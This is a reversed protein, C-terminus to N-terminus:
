MCRSGARSSCTWTPAPPSCRRLRRRGGRGGARLQRLALAHVQRRHARCPREALRRGARGHRARAESRPPPCAPDVLRRGIAIRSLVPPRHPSDRRAREGPGPSRSCARARLPWSRPSRQLSRREESFRRRRSRAPQDPLPEEAGPLEDEGLQYIREPASLDKLRHEGLDTSSSRSSSLPPHPFSCRAATASPRSAPPATSM